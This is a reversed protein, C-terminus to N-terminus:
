IIIGTKCVYPALLDEAEKPMAVDILKAGAFTESLDGASFSQVGEAQLKQRGTNYTGEIISRAIECQAYKIPEAVKPLLQISDGVVLDKSAATILEMAGTTPDYSKIQGYENIKDGATFKIGFYKYWDAPITTSKLGSVTFKTKANSRDVATITVTTVGIATYGAIDHTPNLVGAGRPHKLKQYEAVPDDFFRLRDIVRAAQKLALEKLADAAGAWTNATYYFNAFYENAEALSLYSDAAPHTPICNIM